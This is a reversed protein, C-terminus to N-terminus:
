IKGETQSADFNLHLKIAYKITGEKIKVTSRIPLYEAKVRKQM